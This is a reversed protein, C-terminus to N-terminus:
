VVYGKKKLFAVMRQMVTEFLTATLALIVAGVLVSIISGANWPNSSSVWFSMILIISVLFMTSATMLWSHTRWREYLLGTVLVAILIGAFLLFIQWPSTQNAGSSSHTSSSLLVRVSLIFGCEVFYTIVALLGRWIGLVPGALLIGSPVVLLLLLGAFFLILAPLTPYFFAPVTCLLCIISYGVIYVADKKKLKGRILPLQSPLKM